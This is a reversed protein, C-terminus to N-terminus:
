STEEKNLKSRNKQVSLTFLLAPFSLGFFVFLPVFFLSVILQATLLLVIGISYHPFRISYIFSYVVRTKFSYHTHVLLTYFYFIIFIFLLSFIFLAGLLFPRVIMEEPMLFLILGDAVLVLGIFLFVWGRKMSGWINAKVYGIYDIKWSVKEQRIRKNICYFVAETSAFIPIILLSTLVWLLNLVALFSFYETFVVLASTKEERNLESGKRDEGEM